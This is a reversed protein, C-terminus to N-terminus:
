LKEGMTHRNQKQQRGHKYIAAAAIFEGLCARRGNRRFGVTKVAVTISLWGVRREFIYFGIYDIRM